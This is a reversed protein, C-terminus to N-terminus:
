EISLKLEGAEVVVPYINVKAAPNHPSVGTRIDFQWGHWPCTVIEGELEGEGVPGARHPCVNEIAYYRGELNFIAISRGGVEVVKSKGPRIENAKAIVILKVM